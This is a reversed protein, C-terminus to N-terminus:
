LTLIQHITKTDADICDTILPFRVDAKVPSNNM